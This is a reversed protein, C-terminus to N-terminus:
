SLTHTHACAHNQICSILNTASSPPLLNLCILVFPHSHNSTSAFLLLYLLHHYQTCFPAFPHTIICTLHACFYTHPQPNTCPHSPGIELVENVRLHFSTLFMWVYFIFIGIQWVLPRSLVNCLNPGVILHVKYSKDWIKWCQKPSM